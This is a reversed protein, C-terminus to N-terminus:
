PMKERDNAACQIYKLIAGQAILKAILRELM